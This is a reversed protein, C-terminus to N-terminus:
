KVRKEATVGFEGKLPLDLFKSQKITRPILWLILFLLFASVSLALIRAGQEVQTIVETAYFGVIVLSGTWVTEGAFVVPFWKRWQLRSLGAAILAPVALGASLKALLLVKTSHQRMVHLLRELHWERVGLWRGYRLVWAPKGAHGASYWVVDAVLNGVVGSLLVYPTRLLGAAAAAGGLLTAIPGQVVILVSLLVYNWAGLEPLTGSQLAAWYQRFSSLLAEMHKAM